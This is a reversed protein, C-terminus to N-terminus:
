QSNYAANCNADHKNDNKTLAHSILLCLSYPQIM